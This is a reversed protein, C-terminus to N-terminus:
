RLQALLMASDLWAALQLSDTNAIGAVKAVLLIAPELVQSM